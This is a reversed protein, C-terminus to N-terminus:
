KKVDNHEENYREDNQTARKKTPNSRDDFIANKWKDNRKTLSRENTTPQADHQTNHDELTKLVRARM